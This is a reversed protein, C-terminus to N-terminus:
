SDQTGDRNEIGALANEPLGAYLTEIRKPTTIMTEVIVNILHFLNGAVEPDDFDIQGPHVANNGVVRVIDLSQQIKVPLGNKVLEAIDQNINNGKGGLDICLKQIALRLLAAAAKPSHSAISAAEEYDAKVDEPMDPNPLPANGRNPYIMQNQFWLAAAGCHECVSSALWDNDTYSNSGSFDKGTVSFHYQRAYVGCHPCTYAKIGRQPAIYKM